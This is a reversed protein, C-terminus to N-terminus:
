LLSVKVSEQTLLLHHEDPESSRGLADQVVVLRHQGRKRAKAGAKLLDRYLDEPVETGAVQVQKQAFRKRPQPSLQRPSPLPSPSTCRTFSTKNADRSQTNSAASQLSKFSSTVPRLASLLAHPAM